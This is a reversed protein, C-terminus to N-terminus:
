EWSLVFGLDWQTIYRQGTGRLGQGTVTSFMSRSFDGKAQQTQPFLGGIAINRQARAQLIRMGAEKLTLNQNYAACILEDLVPDRFNQWWTANDDPDPRIRKDYSDIWQNEVAAPPTKYNPGVKFGNHIYEPISTCGCFGVSLTSLLIARVAASWRFQPASLMC